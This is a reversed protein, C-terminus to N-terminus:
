EGRIANIQCVFVQLMARLVVILSILMVKIAKNISSFPFLTVAPHVPKKM